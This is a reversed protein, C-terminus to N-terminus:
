RAEPAPELDQGLEFDSPRPPASRDYVLLGDIYVLDARTYVSFPHGSWVVVDAMKGPELSGTRDDIGIAWAANITIWRLAQDDTIAIGARRGATMAKAAEQNLRQVLMSSDSHVVARVGAETLLALNEEIADYAELKFGWWDAWTSVAIEHEALLDRIKYAEVAHHFSRVRFGLEEGVEIMRAMEDARYCHMQVLVRGELAGLLRELGFDRAPPTPPPGPDDPADDGERTAREHEARRRQWDVHRAQWEAWSRGYERAQQFAARYGLISGMRTMPTQQRGGYVRKPNEGCAMKLTEPAGPFEMESVTRGLHLKLIVGAGGILNASGPLVQITTVGGALARPLAPDVPWVGDAARVGATVAGTMENGDSVGNLHPVPYVGMHSHTDILGPTVYRGRADVIQAEGPVEVEDPAGVATIRGSEMVLVGNEIIRGTATMITGGVIAVPPSAVDSLPERARAWPLPPPDLDPESARALGRAAGSPGGCGGLALACALAFFTCLRM